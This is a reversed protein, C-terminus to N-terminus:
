FRLFCRSASLAANASIEIFRESEGASSREPVLTRLLLILPFSRFTEADRLVSIPLKLGSNAVLNMFSLFGMASSRAVCRVAHRDFILPVPDLTPLYVVPLLNSDLLSFRSASSRLTRAARAFFLILTSYPLREWGVWELISSAYRGISAPGTPDPNCFLPQPFLM